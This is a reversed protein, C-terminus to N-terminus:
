PLMSYCVKLSFQIGSTANSYTQCTSDYIYVAHTKNNFNQGDNSISLQYGNVFMSGTTARKNRLHSIPCVAEILSDAHGPTVTSTQTTLTGDIDIQVYFSIRFRCLM